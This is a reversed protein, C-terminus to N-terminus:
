IGELLILPAYARKKKNKKQKNKKRRVEFLHDHRRGVQGYGRDRGYTGGRTLTLGRDTNLQGLRLHLLSRRAGEMLRVLDVDETLERQSM